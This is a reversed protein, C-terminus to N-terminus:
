QLTVVAASTPPLTIYADTGGNLRVPIPADATWTGDRAVSTGGFTIGTTSSVSPARLLLATAQWYRRAIHLQVTATNTLDKNILVVHLKNDKGLIVHATTNIDTKLVHPQIVNGSPAAEKFLLLAYYLAKADGQADIAAYSAGGSGLHFNIRKIGHELVDFIYDSGWLTAAFSDSVGLKGGGDTSNTETLGLPLGHADAYAKATDIATLTSDMLSTSLLNSAIPASSGTGTESTPYYHYTALTIASSEDNLFSQFWSLNCCQDDGMFRAKSNLELITSKYTEWQSKFITYDYSSPRRGNSYYLDPENGIAIADLRNGGVTILYNAEEAYTTPDYTGLNVSWSFDWGIENLFSITKNVLSETVTTNNYACSYERSSSWNALDGQNGGIRLTGSGLNKFLQSYSSSQNDLTVMACLMQTEASLGIFHAPVAIGVQSPNVTVLVNIGEFLTPTTPYISLLLARAVVILFITTISVLAIIIGLRRSFRPLYPM